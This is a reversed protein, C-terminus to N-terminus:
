DDIILNLLVTHVWSYKSMAMINTVFQWIKCKIDFPFSIFYVLFKLISQINWCFKLHFNIFFYVICMTLDRSNVDVYTIGSLNYRSYSQPWITFTEYLEQTQKM